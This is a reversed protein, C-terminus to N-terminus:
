LTAAEEPRREFPSSHVSAIFQVASVQDDPPDEKGEERTGNKAQARLRRLRRVGVRRRGLFFSLFIGDGHVDVLDDQM